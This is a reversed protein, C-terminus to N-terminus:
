TEAAPTVQVLHRVQFLMGRMSPTDTVEVVDQHHRLGIAVLTRRQVAPMGIGSKIQKVQLRRGAAKTRAAM